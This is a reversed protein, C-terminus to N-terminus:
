ISPNRLDPHGMEESTPSDFRRRCNSEGVALAMPWGVIEVTRDRLLRAPSRQLLGVLGLMYGWNGCYGCMRRLRPTNLFHIDTFGGHRLRGQPDLSPTPQDLGFPSAATEVAVPRCM